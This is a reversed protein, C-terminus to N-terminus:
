ARRFSNMKESALLKEVDLLYLVSADTTAVGALYAAMDMAGALPSSVARTGTEPLTVMGALRDVRFGVALQRNSLLILSGGSSVAARGLGFFAKLDVISVVDGRVNSIGEVWPPLNPLPTIRPLRGVELCHHLPVAFVIGDVGFRIYQAADGGPAEALSGAQASGGPPPPTVGETAMEALLAELPPSSGHGAEPRFRSKERKDMSM